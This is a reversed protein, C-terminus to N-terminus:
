EVIVGVVNTDWDTLTPSIKITDATLDFDLTYTIQHGMEWATITSVFESLPKSVSINESSFDAGSIKTVIQYDLTLLMDSTVSQPLVTQMAILDTAATSVSVNSATFSVPTGSAAWVTGTSVTWQRPGTTGPDSNTLELSGQNYIGGLTFNNIKVTRTINGTTENSTKAKFCLQALAHHFLMPVGTETLNNFGYTNSGPNGKYHWAEDAYLLNDSAGVTYANWSLSTETATTPTAGYWAIFNIYSGASKPWYYDRSPAWYSISTASPDTIKNDNTDYPYIDTGAGFILQTEDEGEYGEAHLFAKSTFSTFEPLVSSNGKTQPVYSAAQFTVKRSQVYDPVEVKTCATLTTLVAIAIYIYKKM